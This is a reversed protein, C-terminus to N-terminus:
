ADEPILLAADRIAQRRAEFYATWATVESEDHAALAVTQAKEYATWAAKELGWYAARTPQLEPLETLLWGWMDIGEPHDALVLALQRLSIGDPFREAFEAQITPSVSMRKLVALTLIM